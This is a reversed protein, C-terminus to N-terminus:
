RQRRRLLSNLRTAENLKAAEDMRIFLSLFMWTQEDLKVTEKTTVQLRRPIAPPNGGLQLTFFFM